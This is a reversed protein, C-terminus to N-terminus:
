GGGRPIWGPVRDRYARWQAGFQQALVEDERRARVVLVPLAAVFALTTWTRYLFLGGVAAITLGAYMPHRVVAYPGSVVLRQDRYLRAGFTSSVNYSSGLAALGALYLGLGSLLGAGGAGAALARARLGVELPLRRWMVAGAAVFGASAAILPAPALMLGPQGAERGVPRRLGRGVGVLAAALAVLALMGGAGRTTREVTLVRSMAVTLWYPRWM